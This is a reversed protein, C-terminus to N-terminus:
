LDIHEILRDGPQRGVADAIVNAPSAPGSRVGAVHRKLVNDIQDQAHFDPGIDDFAGIRAVLMFPPYPFRSFQRRIPQENGTHDTMGGVHDFM